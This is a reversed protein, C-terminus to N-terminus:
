ILARAGDALAWLVRHSSNEYIPDSVVILFIGAGVGALALLSAIAAHRLRIATGDDCLISRIVAM